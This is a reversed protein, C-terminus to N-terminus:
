LLLMNVSSMLTAGPMMTMMALIMSFDGYICGGKTRINGAPLGVM